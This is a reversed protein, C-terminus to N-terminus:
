RGEQAVLANWLTVLERAAPDRAASVRAATHVVVLKSAADVLITQGHIGLLAFQRRPGPLTWVQYGYGYLPTATGPALFHGRSSASTAELVWDRPILREGNWNGDSALLMAFRAWDRLVANFCCYAVEHGSADVLWSADAEAGIKRWIRSSLYDALAMNTARMVILGLLEADLSAYHWLTDPAADRTQFQALAAVTGPGDRRWLARILKAVDDHGDYTERFAIGSAMHLLARIPTSGLETGALEPVYLSAADDVSQIAGEDIAIGVLMGTITKAMSQSTLRQTDTRGYRYHEYLITRGRAILLGTAPHREIYTALTQRAGDHSYALAVEKPARELTSATAGRRVVRAKLIEDYHSYSGVIYRQADMLPGPPAVPYRDPEGYSEADPGTPSFVAIADAFAAGAGLAFVLLAQACGRLARTVACGPM